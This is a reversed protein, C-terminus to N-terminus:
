EAYPDEYPDPFIEDEYPDVFADSDDGSLEFRRSQLYILRLQAYSDASEYLIADVTDTFRGRDGLRSAVSAATGYYEEPSPLVYTLPNTFIDVVTGVTDRATSPGLVPLEIYAGESAGWVHLTEGFDTDAEEIGFDSSVDFLGGIGLVSNILFRSTAVGATRLDGQLLANVTVSPMSLNEAFNGISQEIEDPVITTYGTSAPRVIARDLGKNFEHTKRNSQEYPDFVGGSRSVSEGQQACASMALVFAFLVCARM